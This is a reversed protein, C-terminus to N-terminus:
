KTKPPSIHWAYAAFFLLPSRSLSSTSSTSNGVTSSKPAKTPTYSTHKHNKSSDEIEYPLPCNSLTLLPPVAHRHHRHHCPASGDYASAGPRAPTRLRFAARSDHHALSVSSRPLCSSPTCHPRLSATCHIPPVIDMDDDPSVARPTSAGTAGNANSRSTRGRM